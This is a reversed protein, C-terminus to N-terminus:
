SRATTFTVVFKASLAGTSDFDSIHGNSGPWWWRHLCRSAAVCRLGRSPLRVGLANVGLFRRSDKEWVLHLSRRGDPHEGPTRMM